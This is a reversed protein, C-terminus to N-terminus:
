DFTLDRAGLPAFAEEITADSVEALSAPRWAPAQDKEVVVARVGEYLDDGATCAQSLRYEMIMAEDFGMDRGKQLQRFTLKLSTPSAKELMGLAKESWPDAEGRLREVIAEISDASFCREIVDRAEALPPPGPDSRHESLVRDVVGAAPRANWDAAALAEIMAELGASDLYSTAIGCYLCDAAKIRWGTLGLFLGLHGPLRPLFYSGGVDPFLGIGTEPMAFLTRETAVRHSGHVSIGVGGGMTVGDILAIYPKPFTKVRRNLSYEERFFAEGFPNRGDQRGEYIHLVDGGACFARDGAGRIVVAPVEPDDAWADLRPHLVEIMELTLANLARPRNLTILAVAGRREFLIDDSESM